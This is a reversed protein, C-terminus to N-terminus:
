LGAVLMPRGEAPPLDLIRGKMSVVPSFSMDIQTSADARLERRLYFTQAVGHMRVRIKGQIRYDGPTVSPFSFHEGLPRVFIYQAWAGLPDKNLL